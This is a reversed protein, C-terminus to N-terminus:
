KVLYKNFNNYLPSYPSCWVGILPTDSIYIALPSIYVHYLILICHLGIFVSLLRCSYM